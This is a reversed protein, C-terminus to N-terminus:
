SNTGTAPLQFAAEAKAQETTFIYHQDTGRSGPAHGLLAQLTSQPVLRQAQWTAYAKRLVHPTIKILKGDRKIKATKTASALAKRFNDLPKGPNKGCFVYRGRKTLRQIVGLLEGQIHIRRESYKTKPSWDDRPRIHVIGHVENVCDWTLHRAEGLRCGTEALFQVIPKLRDPLADILRRVEAAEPVIVNRRHSPIQEVTPITSVYGNDKAWRMVLGFTSMESNITRPRMEDDLRRQQYALARAILYEGM